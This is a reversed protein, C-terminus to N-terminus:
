RSDVLPFSRRSLPLALAPEEVEVPGWNGPALWGLLGESASGIRLGCAGCVWQESEQTVLTVGPATKHRFSQLVDELVDLLSDPDTVATTWETDQDTHHVM